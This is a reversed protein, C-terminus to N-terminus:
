GGDKKNVPVDFSQEGFQSKPFGISVSYISDRLGPIILHGISSSSLTKGGTHVYYPQNNESQIFIFYNNQACLAVAFVLFVGLVFLKKM